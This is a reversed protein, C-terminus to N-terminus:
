SPPATAAQVPAAQLPLKEAQWKMLGGALNYVQKFGADKMLNMAKASRVGGRCYVLYIGDKDLGAVQAAFDPGKVDINLADQIHNEAFEAASRVDIVKFLPDASKAKILAAAQAPMLDSFPVPDAAPTTLPLMGGIIITALFRLRIARRFKKMDKM